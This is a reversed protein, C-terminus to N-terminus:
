TYDPFVVGHRQRVPGAALGLVCVLAVQHDVLLLHRHECLARLLQLQDLVEVHRLGLAQEQHHLGAQRQAIGKAREVEFHQQAHAALVARDHRGPLDDGRRFAVAADRGDVLPHQRGRQLPEGGVGVCRL